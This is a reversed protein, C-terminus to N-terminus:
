ILNLNQLTKKLLKKSCPKTIIADVGSNHINIKNIDDDFSTLSIYCIKKIKNRIELQKLISISLSGEIFEMLEDTIVCKILNNNNQDDMIMKLTEIGDCAELIEFDKKCERFIDYLNNKISYRIFQNDDVILITNKSNKNRYKCTQNNNVLLENPSKL